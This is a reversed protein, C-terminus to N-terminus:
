FQIPLIFVQVHMLTVLEQILRHDAALLDVMPRLLTRVRELRIKHDEGVVKIVPQIVGGIVGDAM